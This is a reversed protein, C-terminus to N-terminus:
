CLSLPNGSSDASWDLTESDISALQNGGANVRYLVQAAALPASLTFSEDDTFNLNPIALDAFSGALVEVM